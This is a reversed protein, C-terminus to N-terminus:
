GSEALVAVIIARAQRDATALRVWRKVRSLLVYEEGVEADTDDRTDTVSARRAELEDQMSRLQRWMAPLGTPSSQEIIDIHARAKAIDHILLDIPSLAAYDIVPPDPAISVIASRSREVWKRVNAQPVKAWEAVLAYSDGAAIRQVAETRVAKTAHSM